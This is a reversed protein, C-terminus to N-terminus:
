IKELDKLLDKAFNKILGLTQIIWVEGWTENVLPGFCVGGNFPGNCKLTNNFYIALSPVGGTQCLGFCMCLCVCVRSMLSYSAQDAFLFSHMM